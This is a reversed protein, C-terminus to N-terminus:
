LIFTVANSIFVARALDPLYSPDVGYVQAVGVFGAATPPVFYSRIFTPDAVLGPDPNGFLGAPDFVIATGTPSLISTQVDGFITPVPFPQPVDVAMILDQPGDEHFYTVTVPGFAADGEVRLSRVFAHVDVSPPTVSPFLNMLLPRVLVVVRLDHSFYDPAVNQLYFAGQGNSDTQQALPYISATGDTVIMSIQGGVIPAGSATRAEFIIPGPLTDGFDGAQGDGILITIVAWPLVTFTLVTSPTGPMGVATVNLDHSGVDAGATLTISAVGAADTVVVTPNTFFVLGAASFNPSSFEVPTGAVTNGMADRVEAKVVAFAAMPEISQDDGAIISISALSQAWSSTGILGIIGAVALLVSLSKSM